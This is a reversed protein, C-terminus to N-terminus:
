LRKLIEQKEKEFKEQTIERKRGGLIFQKFSYPIDEISGGEDQIVVGFKDSFNYLVQIEYTAGGGWDKYDEIEEIKIKRTILAEDKWCYIGAEFEIEEAIVKTEKTIKM